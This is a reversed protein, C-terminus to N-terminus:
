TTADEEAKDIIRKCWKYMPDDEVKSVKNDGGWLSYSIDGCIPKDKEDIYEGTVYEYARSLYAFTKKVIDLSLGRGEILDNARNKGVLTACPNNFSENIEKSKEANERASKPYDDYLEQKYEEEEEEKDKSLADELEEMNACPMYVMGDETEHTHTTSCGIAEARDQAEERSNYVEDSISKDDKSSMPHGEPLLDQDHKGSRFKGNRLAYLFSNVRGMAWQDENQVNPRVSSPNTRYAGVGRKYVQYLTRVTTRKTKADGVKENHEEVKNKLATELRATMQKEEQEQMDEMEDETMVEEEQEAEQVPFTVDDSIGLDLDSIPVFQNPILYENMIHNDEDVGYGSAERKENTTLWYSKSLNDILQQQEPMLEPIASYDFDFYLDEGYHPVLWRNFEDRIKNLEPIIANTFLVKRAIRYNDYTTSETNNLLQVPVGYLNCLDKITANYSELLQLDSTSLGFNTWSFKKGTIMIDNASKSGQYNRRLADKLQQAQTPTLQDDDPTLMGRASQNHLFKLNTEVAENATTLVRMGAEIPSQGYLHTGDGQYDPNFDAIHLVEESSLEYKNKNYMMTYKSVPKFIGDSKIEILHAPLNYMQSYIGKNEGNEPAIGYVFRNGTLKGFSILEQLFVSFSQAPNPRELLKGLASHEVEEFIHKRMLKSKFVSDENLGNSLLGKYEKVASEDLKQYIKYPVTIASKSILQILSYITPNFKYGKDIFDDNYQSNTIQNKGLVDYIFRNYQENTQQNGFAKISNRIRQLFSAM